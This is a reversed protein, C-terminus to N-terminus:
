LLSRHLGTLNNSNIAIFLNSRRLWRHKLHHNESKEFPETPAGQKYCFRSNPFRSWLLRRNISLNQIPFCPEMPAEQKYFSETNPFMAGYSGGSLNSFNLKRSSNVM